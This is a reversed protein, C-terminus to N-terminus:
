KGGQVIALAGSLPLVDVDGVQFHAHITQFRRDEIVRHIAADLHTSAILAHHSIKGSGGWVTDIATLAHIAPTSDCDPIILLPPAEAVDEAMRGPCLISTECRRQPPHLM